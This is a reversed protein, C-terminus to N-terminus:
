DSLVIEGQETVIYVPVDNERATYAVHGSGDGGPFMIVIDDDSLLDVMVRNRIPGASVGFESWLAVVTAVHINESWAWARATEDAGVSGGEVIVEICRPLVKKQIERMATSLLEINNFDLGGCVLVKM